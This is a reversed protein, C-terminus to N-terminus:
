ASSPLLDAASRAAALWGEPHAVPPQDWVRPLICEAAGAGLDGCLQISDPGFATLPHDFEKFAERVIPILDPVFGLLYSGVWDVASSNAGGLLVGLNLPQPSLPGDGQGAVAADVVSIVQRQPEDALTGDPRGYLLIRNLDLCMRWVTDNGIWAGEVGLRDGRAIAVANLIRQVVNWTQKAAITRSRNLGDMSYELARKVASRGPYCDGGSASGGVRHHPLYEKNGNIGVLNKLACTVGAKKHTKLKPLNVVVDAEIVARAVLYQHRGPGHTRELRGPDYQTVRFPARRNTIPELLSATGLDFLIFQDLPVQEEAALRVGRRFVSRTRRFDKIGAFGPADLALREAWSAIGSESLLRDFDCSQLPADAVMVETGEVELAAETVARVLAASTYLPQTGWPGRNAHLVWNPKVVVRASTPIINSFPGRAGAWGLSSALAALAHAVDSADPTGVVGVVPDDLASRGIPGPGGSGETM